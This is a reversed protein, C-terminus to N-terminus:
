KAQFHWKPVCSQQVNGNYRWLPITPKGRSTEYPEMSLLFERHCQLNNQSIVLDDETRADRTNERELGIDLQSSLAGVELTKLVGNAAQALGDHDEGGADGRVEVREEVPDLLSAATGDDDELVVGDEVLRDGQADFADDEAGNCAGLQDIAEVADGGALTGHLAGLDLGHGRGVADADHDELAEGRLLKLDDSEDGFAALVLVDGVLEAGLLLDDLVVEAGDVVLGADGVTEFESEEGNM